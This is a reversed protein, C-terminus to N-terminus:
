KSIGKEFLFLEYGFDLKEYITFGYKEYWPINKLTSTELYISRQMFASEQIVEELLRSGIGNNQESPEIGIFWLYYMLVGKPHIKKIKSERDMAKKINFLGICSIALKADMLISKLSTRKKDPIVILACGKKNDSLFTESHM